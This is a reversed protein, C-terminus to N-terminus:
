RSLSLSVTRESRRHRDPDFNEFHGNAVVAIGRQPLRFEGLRAQIALPGTPGLDEGRLRATSSTVAWVTRPAVMFTQGNSATGALRMQGVGLARGAARSIMGLWAPNTWASEPLRPSVRNMFRTASTTGLEVTWDLLGAITVQLTWPTVWTVDIDCQVADNATSSSFYRACSQEGPTTAYFTWRGASDRHWVSTYAPAFTAAPFQRLGLYHGGTFPLGMIGFGAFREDNGAPLNPNEDHAAVIAAPTNKTMVLHDHPLAARWM